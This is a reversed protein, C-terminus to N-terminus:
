EVNSGQLMATGVADLKKTPLKLKVGKKNLYEGVTKIGKDGIFELKNGVRYLVQGGVTKIPTTATEYLSSWFGGFGGKFGADTLARIGVKELEQLNAYDRYAKKINVDKLTDYTKTRIASALDAKLTKYESAVEKGKFIKTPTFKDLSTKIKNATLIDTDTFNKYDDLLAEYADQLAQRRGPELEAEVTQKAKSFLEDKTIKEKTNTLAPEINNKWLGLKEVGSQKGLMKETGMLGKELATDARTTPTYKNAVELQGQLSKYDDSGKSVKKMEKQIFAKKIANSQVAEAEDVTLNIASKFVKEGTKTLGKGIAPLAKEASKIAISTAGKAPAVVAGGLGLTSVDVIDQLSKFAEPHQQAFATLKKGTDSELGSQITPAITEGIAEVGQKVVPAELVPAIATRAVGGVTGLGSKLVGGVQKLIGKLGGQQKGETIMEAGTTIAGTIDKSGKQIQEGVRSFYGQEPINVQKKYIPYKEVIKKSLELNDMDKYQPYKTKINNAFTNHDM